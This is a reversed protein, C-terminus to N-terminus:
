LQCSSFQKSVDAYASYRRETISLTLQFPALYHQPLTQAVHVVHGCFQSTSPNVASLSRVSCLSVM